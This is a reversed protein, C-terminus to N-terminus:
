VLRKASLPLLLFIQLKSTHGAINSAALSVALGGSAVQAAILFIGAFLLGRNERPGLWCILNGAISIMDCLGICLYRTNTFKRSVYTVLLISLATIAGIPCTLALSKFHSFGFGNIM